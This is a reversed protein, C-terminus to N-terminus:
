EIDIMVGYILWEYKDTYPILLELVKKGERNMIKAFTAKKVGFIKKFLEDPTFWISELFSAPHYHYQNEIFLVEEIMNLNKQAELHKILKKTKRSM